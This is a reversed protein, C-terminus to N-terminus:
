DTRVNKCFHTRRGYVCFGAKIAEAPSAFVFLGQMVVKPLMEFLNPDKSTSKVFVWHLGARRPKVLRERGDPLRKCQSAFTSTVRLVRSKGPRLRYAAPRQRQGAHSGPPWAQAPATLKGAPPRGRTSSQLLPSDDDARHMQTPASYRPTHRCCRPNRRTSSRDPMPRVHSSRHSHHATSRFRVSACLARARSQLRRDRDSVALDHWSSSSRHNRSSAGPQPQFAAGYISSHSAEFRLSRGRVSHRASEM